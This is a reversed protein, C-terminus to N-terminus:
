SADRAHMEAALSLAQELTLHAGVLSRRRFDASGDDATLIALIREYGYRETRKRTGGAARLQADTYGLLMSAREVDGCLGSLVAHHELVTLTWLQGADHSHALAEGLCARADEFSDVAMEYAARNCALLVLPAGQVRQLIEKAERGSVRAAEFDGTAFELEALNLLARGQRVSGPNEMRALDGFRRRALELDGDGRELENIAREALVITRINRPLDGALAEEFVADAEAYRGGDVYTSGLDKLALGIAVADGSRRAAALGARDTAERWEISRGVLWALRRHHRHVRAEELPSWFAEPFAAA